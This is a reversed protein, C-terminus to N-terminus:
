NEREIKKEIGVEHGLILLECDLKSTCLEYAFCFFLHAM